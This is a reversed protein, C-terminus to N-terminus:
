EDSGPERLAGYVVPASTGRVGTLWDPADDDLDGDASTVFRLPRDDLHGTLDVEGGRRLQAFREQVLRFLSGLVDEDVEPLDLEEVRAAQANQDAHELPHPLPATLEGQRAALTRDQFYEGDGAEIPHKGNM